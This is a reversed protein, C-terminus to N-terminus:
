VAPLPPTTSLKPISPAYQPLSITAGPRAQPSEAKNSSKIVANGYSTAMGSPLNRNVTVTVPGRAGEQAWSLHTENGVTEAHHVTSLFPLSLAPRQATTLACSSSDEHTLTLHHPSTWLLPLILDLSSTPQEHALLVEVPCPVAPSTSLEPSAGGGGGHNGWPGQGGWM